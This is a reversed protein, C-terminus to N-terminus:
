DESARSEILEIEGNEVLWNGRETIVAFPTGHILSLYPHIAVPYPSVIHSVTLMALKGGMRHLESPSKDLTLCSKSLPTVEEVKGTAKSVEVKTHGGVKVVNPDTTAALVFVEWTADTAGPLVVTNFQRSCTNAGADLAALRAKLMSVEIPDPSRKPVLQVSPSQNRDYTVDAILVIEDDKKQYFSVTYDHENPYTVWGVFNPYDAPNIAALVLDSAQAARIDRAFMEQGADAVRTIGATEEATLPIPSKREKVPTTTNCGLLLLSTLLATTKKM